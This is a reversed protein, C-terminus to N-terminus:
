KLVVRNLSAGGLIGLGNKINSHIVVANNYGANFSIEKADKARQLSRYYKYLDETISSLEFLYKDGSNGSVLGGRPVTTITKSQGDFLDDTFLLSADNLRYTNYEALSPDTTNLVSPIYENITENLYYFNIRYYNKEGAKDQFTISVLDSVNGGTDIGGNEVLKGSASLAAPLKIVSTVRPYDPHSIELAIPEGADIIDPAIYKNSFLDYTLSVQTSQYTMKVSADKVLSPVVTDFAAISNTLQISISNSNDVIGNVVIKDSYDLLEKPKITDTFCSMLSVSLIIYFISSKM